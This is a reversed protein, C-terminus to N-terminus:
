DRLLGGSYHLQYIPRNDFMIVEVGSFRHINGLIRNSYEFQDNTFMEPGRFPAQYPVARLAAQLFQYVGPTKALDEGTNIGGAYSMAWIPNTQFYVTEQGVFFDGGFYIDRYFLAGKRFELQNSGKLRPTVRTSDEQAAYTAIKAAVLFESFNQDPIPLVM